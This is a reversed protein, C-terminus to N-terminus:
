QAQHCHCVHLGLAGCPMSGAAILRGPGVSPIGEGGLTLAGCAAMLLPCQNYLLAAAGSPGTLLPPHYSEGWMYQLRGITNCLIIYLM